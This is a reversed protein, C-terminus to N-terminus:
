SMRRWVDPAVLGGGEPILQHQAYHMRTCTDRGMCLRNRTCEPPLHCLLFTKSGTSFYPMFFFPKRHCYQIGRCHPNLSCARSIYITRPKQSFAAFSTSFSASSLYWFFNCFACNEALQQLSVQSSTTQPADSGGIKAPPHSATQFAHKM